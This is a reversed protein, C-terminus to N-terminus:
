MAFIRMGLLSRRVKLKGLAELYEVHANITMAAAFRVPLSQKPYIRAVIASITRAGAEAAELV